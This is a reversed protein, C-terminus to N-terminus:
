QIIERWSIRKGTPPPVDFPADVTLQQAASTTAIVVVKGGPLRVINIGVALSETGDSGVLRRGVAADASNAIANGTANNFYNLWSYGGINCANNQPVNTAVVLTGLQLKLDITVREGTDPFDAFWGTTSGCQATCGVTRFATTGSGQDTITMQKLTTRLNTLSTSTLDDRLAWISQTQVNSNDTTGLYRGTGVYVFPQGAVEALEPRTTIPQAAASSDVVTALRTAEVGAPALIDNVDFRWVNGLLDVGYVRETQNNRTPNEVWANIHNLGSPTTANGVGTSIKYLIKGTMAELVYLYGVGDGSVSPANVNNYGSTVFVVWRGDRLKSIIPNSFTYGIHCDAYWTSATASDYCTSSHKFEWLAKPATPNTIDLAYYGQGGKNLGGVLITKWTTNATDYVDGVTPTSDVSYVHQAAYNESALKYLNPLVMTPIFAWAENGGNTDVISTGAYFAHLMGDNAAAFVIPTRSVNATKYALYGADDYEAFPAKVYVPQANIIDGLIHERARYLQNATNAVFNELGRQGRLFNVLNAGVALSRQNASAPPTVGDTMNPYQSLLAIQTAGFNAQETANLTTQPSGVPAGLPTGAVCTDTNWKFDVLNNTAGSRFLKIIRNDCANRTATDLKGQASWVISSRVTGASATLAHTVPDFEDQLVIEHAELEGTWKQTVYKATYAFNDGAVPELNSTAAAAASAVRASVGALASTLGGVVTDPNGASFYQGRGNVATHWLDDLATPSDAVPLPWNLSGSRINQFSGTAATKYDSQYPVTGSLGLGMTFTTMHQWQAKDDEAGTGTSPVNNTCVDTTGGLAGTCNGLTSTRLDTKYYYQAVDSLTNSSGGTVPGQTECPWVQSGSLCGSPPAPPGGSAVATGNPPLAPQQGAIFCTGTIDTWSGTTNTPTGVISGSQNPGQYNASTVTTRYQNKQGTNDVFTQCKIEQGSGDPGSPSCSAVDTWATLDRTQCTITAGGGSSATCSAVDGWGSDSSSCTVTPGSSPNSATCSSASVFGTDSAVQCTVTPGSSPNSATCTGINVWGSDSAVQCFTVPNTGGPTCTGTNAWSSFGGNRCFPMSADLTGGTCDFNIDSCTGWSPSGNATCKRMRATRKQNQVTRKQNQVTRKTVQVTRKQWQVTKTQIRTVSCSVNRYNNAATNWTYLATAGDFIPRPSVAFKSVAPNYADLEAINGDQNDMGDITGNLKAGGTGNWYGDTTLITFNQQCSYQVPDGSMGQNIGDTKGAFYRGARSLATRLPTSNNATQSYFKTFWSSKQTTDFDAITLFKATAVPSGPNITIFGVRYSDSLSVFVRGAASKMMNLRYSYYSYWNAFNQREDTAGPGSTASVLVKRWLATKGAAACNAFIPATTNPYRSNDTCIEQTILDSSSSLTKQCDGTLPVLTTAGLYTWYYGPQATDSSQSKFSSSLNTTSAGGSDYSYFGDNYAATFSAPTAANVAGGTSTKPVIYAIAPSYYVLNCYNNRFGVTDTYSGVDDPMYKWAMSGSDDLTFLVNPKVQTTSASALPNDALDALAAYATGAMMLTAIAALFALPHRTTASHIM